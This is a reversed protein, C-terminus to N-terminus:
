LAEMRRSPLDRGFSDVEVPMADLPRRAVAAAADEFDTRAHAVDGAPDGRVRAYVTDHRRIQLISVDAGQFLECEVADCREGGVYAFVAPRQGFEPREVGHNETFEDLVDPEIVFHSQASCETWVQCGVRDPDDRRRNAEHLVGIVLSAEAPPQEPHSRTQEVTGHNGAAVIAHLLERATAVLLDSVRAETQADREGSEQVPRENGPRGTM